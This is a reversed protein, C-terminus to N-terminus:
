MKMISGGSFSVATCTRSTSLDALVPTNPSPSGRSRILGLSWRVNAAKNPLITPNYVYFSDNTVPVMSERPPYIAHVPELRVFSFAIAFAIRVRLNM